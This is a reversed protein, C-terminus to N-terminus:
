SEGTSKKDVWAKYILYCGILILAAPWWDEVWDLSYGFKTHSLALLGFIILVVGGLLSGQATPLQVDEPLESPGLGALAQNYLSAKRYADVVNYLWFFALFLGCLPELGGVGASLMAILSGVVLVNIFGQQYYGIYIQGLGPMASLVAALLPNKSRPDRQYYSKRPAEQVPPAVPPREPIQQANEM